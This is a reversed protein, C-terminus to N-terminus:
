QCSVCGEDTISCFNVPDNLADVPAAAATAVPQEKVKKSQSRLYYTTKLGKEWASIYLKALESGRTGAKVFINTSQAQDIWVQRAAAHEIIWKPEVEWVTRVLEPRGHRMVPSVVKFKGSINGEVREREFPPETCPETSALISITATPAIAMVNSNRMGGAVKQRLLDWSMHSMSSLLVPAGKHRTDAPVMGKSWSSGQFSKYSGRERALDASAEIAYYSWAETMASGFQVAEESDFAQGAMVLAEAYGMMGLGIPRHKLNSERARWSPYYNLDIVNDLMRTALAVTRQLKAHNISGDANIHKTLNVSGLNCVATETDSTNLTIETCLNSSHVTGVHGQPSRRNCEDKFTIWPHGTEFLNTLLHKWVELAPMQSFAKGQAELAEYREEFARGHLEHLEPYLHPEFFSWTGASQVRKMFLDPLWAAPFIDHARMRDDGFEKKLECFAIFDPHWPELYPAFSGKRKGGQNVAVATDNYVKLYPVVGSSRGNTGKILSGEGRVRTWSTGIGGAYKSLRASEEITGYISAYQPEYEEASIQDAVTNLYCSSLQSRVTGSNFLTPTSSVFDFSSLMNYFDIARATPNDEHLSVGMAVRMLFQQPLEIISQDPLRMLYRDVVNQLGFYDFHKDRSPTIAADIKSFEFLTLMRPSFRGGAVGKAIVQAMSTTYGSSGNVRKFLDALLYRAAVYTFDQHEVSILGSAANIQAKFIDQTSMGDYVLFQIQKRLMEKDVNLGETAYENLREIKTFDFPERSGDRKTVEM